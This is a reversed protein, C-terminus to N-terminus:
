KEPSLKGLVGEVVEKALAPRFKELLRNYVPRAIKARAKADGFSERFRKWEKDFIERYPGYVLYNGHYGTRETWGLLSDFYTSLQEKLDETSGKAAAEASFIESARITLLTRLDAHLTAIGGPVYWALGGDFKRKRSKDEGARKLGEKAKLMADPDNGKLAKWATALALPNRPDLQMSLDDLMEDFSAPDDPNWALRSMLYIDPLQVAPTQSNGMLGVLKDAKAVRAAERIYYEQFVTMPPSPEHEVAGYPFCIAKDTLGLEKLLAIHGLNCASLFWPEPLRKKLGLVVDRWNEKQSSTGWGWWMWYILAQEKPRECFRDMLKRHGVFIDVLESAPSGKWGGPDCDIIWYADANPLTRYLDERSAMIEQFQKPDGPDKLVEVEFYERTEIPMGKDSEAVNNACDGLWVDMGRAAHAYQVVEGYKMLYKSDAESLPHPLIGVMTWIQIMNFKMQSLLDVYLKWDLQSWSRCAYPYNYAWHLHGYMGRRAFYPTERVDLPLAIKKGAGSLRILRTLETIALETGHPDNGALFFYHRRQRESFASKIIFGEKGLEEDPVAVRPAGAPASMAAEKGAVIVATPGPRRALCDSGDSFTVKYDCVSALTEALPSNLGTLVYQPESKGSILCTRSFDVGALLTAGRAEGPLTGVAIGLVFGFLAVRSATRIM